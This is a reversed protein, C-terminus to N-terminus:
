GNDVILENVTEKITSWDFGRNRLFTFLKKRITDPPGSLTRLKREAANRCLETQDYGAITEEIIEDSLGKQKLRARTKFKGEPRRRAMSAMCSGAFTRDNLLSLQDLREMASAIANSDFGKKKLKGELEARGHDRAALLRMAHELANKRDREDAM